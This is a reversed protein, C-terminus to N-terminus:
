GTTTTTTGTPPAPITTTPGTEPQPAGPTTPHPGPGEPITTTTTTGTPPGSTDAVVPADEPVSVDIAIPTGSGTYGSDAVSALYNQIAANDVTEIHHAYRDPHHGVDKGVGGNFKSIVVNDGETSVRNIPADFPGIDPALPAPVRLPKDERPLGPNRSEANVVVDQNNELVLVQTGDPVSDLQPQSYYGASVAHTVNVGTEPNNFTPDSALDLATDGGFSHGVLMVNAGEPVNELIYERVMQAYRNDDVDASLSSPGAYRDVDRVSRNYPDLGFPSRGNAVDSVKSSLDIVGPLNVIYNGNDLEIIEFEDQQTKGGNDPHGTDGNGGFHQGDGTHRLAATVTAGGAEVQGNRSGDGPDVYYHGRIAGTYTGDPDGRGTVEHLGLSGADAATWPDSYIPQARVKAEIPGWGNGAPQNYGLSGADAATYDTPPKPQEAQSKATTLGLSGADAARLGSDAAGSQHSPPTKVGLSGADAATYAASWKKVTEAVPASQRKTTEPATTKKTSSPWTAFPEVVM